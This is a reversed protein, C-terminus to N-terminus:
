HAAGLEILLVGAMIMVIGAIMTRTLAEKFFFRSLLATLAVGSATWIGYAISLPVGEKLSGSLLSFAAIYGIAVPIYAIRKGSSAVKLLLTATVESAIACILFVWGM